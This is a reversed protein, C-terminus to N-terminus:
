NLNNLYGFDREVFLPSSSGKDKKKRKYGDKNGLFIRKLWKQM